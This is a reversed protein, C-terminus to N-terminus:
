QLLKGLEVRDVAVQRLGFALISECLELLRARAADEDSGINRRSAEVDIVDVNNDLTAAVVHVAKHVPCAPGGSTM